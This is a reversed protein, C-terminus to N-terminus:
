SQEERVDGLVTFSTVLSDEVMGQRDEHDPAFDSTIYVDLEDLADFDDPDDLLHEPVDATYEEVVTIDYERRYKIRKM